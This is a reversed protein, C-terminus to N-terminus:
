EGCRGDKECHLFTFFGKTEFERFAFDFPCEGRDFFLSSRIPGEDVREVVLVARANGDVAGGSGETASLDAHSRHSLEAIFADGVFEESMPEVTEAEAFSPEVDGALTGDRVFGM